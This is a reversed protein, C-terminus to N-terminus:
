VRRAGSGEAQLSEAPALVDLAAMVGGPRHPVGALRLGMEVGSLTGALMLDNFAGLHGIRFARGALRGLGTGLSMDFQELITARLRDADHGDPVLVATLVSSCEAPEQCVIEFGWHAVAARAAAAHRGHRAFVAPLGEEDLMVLSERLGYLLNTAPTYPFFGSRNLKVMDSWDFYSRPLRARSQAAM